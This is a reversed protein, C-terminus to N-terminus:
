GLSSLPSYLANQGGRLAVRADVMAPPLKPNRFASELLEPGVSKCRPVTEARHM